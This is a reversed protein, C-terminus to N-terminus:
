LIFELTLNQFSYLKESRNPLFTGTSPQPLSDSSQPPGALALSPVHGLCGPLPPLQLAPPLLPHTTIVGGSLWVKLKGRVRKVWNNFRTQPNQISQCPMLRTGLTKGQLHTPRSVCSKGGRGGELSLGQSRPQCPMRSSRNTGRVHTVYDSFKLSSRVM